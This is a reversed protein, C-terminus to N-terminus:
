GTHCPWSESNRMSSFIAKFLIYIKVRRFIFPFYSFTSFINEEAITQMLQIVTKHHLSQTWFDSTGWVRQIHLMNEFSSYYKKVKDLARVVTGRLNDGLQWERWLLQCIRWALREYGLHEKKEGNIRSRQLQVWLSDTFSGHVSSLYKLLQTYTM